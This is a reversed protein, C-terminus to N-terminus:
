FMSLDTFNLTLILLLTSDFHFMKTRLPCTRIYETQADRDGDPVINHYKAESRVSQKWKHVINVYYFLSEAAITNYVHRGIYLICKYLYKRRSQQTNDTLGAL